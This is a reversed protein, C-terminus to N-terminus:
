KGNQYLTRGVKFLHDEGDIAVLIEFTGEVRHNMKKTDSVILGGYSEGPFITQTKMVTSDIFERSSRANAAISELNDRLFQSNQNAVVQSAPIQYTPMPSIGLYAGQQYEAPIPINTYPDITYTRFPNSSYVDLVSHPGTAYAQTAARRRKAEEKEIERILDNYSLIKVPRLNWKDLHSNFIISVNESGVSIPEDGLNCVILVYSTNDTTSKYERYPALSVYHKKQSIITEKGFENLTQQGECAISSMHMYRATCGQLLTFVLILLISVRKM